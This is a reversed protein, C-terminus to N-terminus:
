EMFLGWLEKVKKRAMSLINSITKESLQLQKAIEENSFGQINM